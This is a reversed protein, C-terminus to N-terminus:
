DLGLGLRGRTIADLSSCSLSRREKGYRSKAEQGGDPSQADDYDLSKLCATSLNSNIFSQVALLM